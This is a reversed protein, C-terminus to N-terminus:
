YGEPTHYRDLNTFLTRPADFGLVATGTPGHRNKILYFDALGKKDTAPDFQEERMVVLVQDAAAEGAERLDSLMPRRDARRFIERNLQSLVVVPCRLEGALNKLAQSAQNMAQATNMKRLDMELLGLYDVVLLRLPGHQANLRLARTRLDAVTIPRADEIYLPAGAREGNLRIIRALEEGDLDSGRQRHTDIGTEQAIIRQGLENRTMELSVVGAPDGLRAVQWALNVAFATKGSGPIGAVLLLNGAGLGGILRDIDVYGTSLGAGEGATLSTFLGDLVEGIPVFGGDTATMTAETITALAQSRLAQADLDDRYGLAAVRGGATILGRAEHHRAVIRAYYEVHASTPAADTLDAVFAVGGVNELAGAARLADSVTRIDPPVRRQYCSLMARYIDGHKPWYFMEPTLLPAVAVIADRNLLCSGLVAAEAEGDHPPVPLGASM